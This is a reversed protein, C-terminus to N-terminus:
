ERRYRDNKPQHLILRERDLANLRKRLNGASGAPVQLWGARHHTERPVTLSAPNTQRPCNGAQNDGHLTHSTL